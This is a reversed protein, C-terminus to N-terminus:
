FACQLIEERKLDKCNDFSAAIKGHKMVLIRDSISLLEPLESSILIICVGEKLLDNMIKYIEIKSGVDIGRTPEDFILVDSESALWKAIIVKQQNGGSLNRVIQKLDTTKISLMDVHKQTFQKQKKRNILILNKLKHLIPLTVNYSVSQIQVLGELKRDEPILGIGNKIAERTNKIVLKEGNLYVEGSDIPDVGFIAKALETRGAGILGFIGLMEGKRVDFSVNDLAGERTVNRVSLVAEGKEQAEKPYKESLERGIMMKILEPMTIDDINRTGIYQGDRLVTVKHCIRNIEEMRHSIYIISTGKSSLEKVNEFLTDIDKNTLSSTPEDMIIIRANWMIAKAIEVIQKHAVSLTSVLRKVDLNAKVIGNLVEDARRIMEKKNITRFVKNKIIERGMFMNQYIAVNEALMLEQHIISIGYKLAAHPNRISVPEGNLYIEGEDAQISGSLVKMLTSKGAGNEGMLAHVEGKNVKLDVHSLAQVGPFAKSINKMELIINKPM